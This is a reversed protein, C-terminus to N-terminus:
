LTSIEFIVTRQSGNNDQGFGDKSGKGCQLFSLGGFHRPAAEVKAVNKM